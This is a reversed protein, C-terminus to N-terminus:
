NKWTYITGMVLVSALGVFFACLLIMEITAIM